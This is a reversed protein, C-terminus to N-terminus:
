RPSKFRHGLLRYCKQLADLIPDWNELHALLAVVFFAVFMPVTGFYFLYPYNVRKFLMDAFMAM